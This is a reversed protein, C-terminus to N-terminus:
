SHMAAGQRPSEALVELVKAMRSLTCTLISLNRATIHEANGARAEFAEAVKRLKRSKFSACKAMM